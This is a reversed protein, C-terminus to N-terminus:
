GDRDAFRLEWLGLLPHGRHQWYSPDHTVGNALLPEALRQYDRRFESGPMNLLHYILYFLCTHVTARYRRM